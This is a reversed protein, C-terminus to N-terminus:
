RGRFATSWQRRWSITSLGLGECVEWSGGLQSKRWCWLEELLGEGPRVGLWEEWQGIVVPPVPWVAVRAGSGYWSITLLMSTPLSTWDAKAVLWDDGGGTPSRQLRSKGVVTGGGQPRCAVGISPREKSWPPGWRINCVGRPSGLAANECDLTAWM